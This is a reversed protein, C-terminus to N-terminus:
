GLKDSETEATLKSSKDNVLEDVKVLTATPNEQSFIHARGANATVIWLSSM